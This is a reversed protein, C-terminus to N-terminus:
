SEMGGFEKFLGEAWAKWQPDATLMVNLKKAVTELDEGFEDRGAQLIQCGRMLGDLNNELVHAGIAVCLSVLVIERHGFECQTVHRKIGDGKGDTM